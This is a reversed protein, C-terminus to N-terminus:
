LTPADVPSPAPRLACYAWAAAGVLGPILISAGAFPFAAVCLVLSIISMIRASGSLLRVGAATGAIYTAIGLSNPIVLLTEPGWGCVLTLLLAGASLLGVGIVARAPVGSRNIPALAAPLAGDRALAYALRSTAGGGPRGQRM